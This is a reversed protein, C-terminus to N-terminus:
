RKKSGKKQLIEIEWGKKTVLKMKVAMEQKFSTM